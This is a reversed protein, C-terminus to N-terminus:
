TRHLMPSGLKAREELWRHATTLSPIYTAVIDRLSVRLNRIDYANFFRGKEITNYEGPGSSRTSASPRATSRTLLAM